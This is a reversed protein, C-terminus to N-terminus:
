RGCHSLNHVIADGLESTSVPSEDPTAIDRTRIGSALARSVAAEIASAAQNYNFSHRLMMALSLIQAIPNAIGKGAIDPASGGSPEYLGLGSPSLSASPTLGLSGPFAAALDSLIDGFLNSTLIVDFQAPAKVLQLACNDVLMDELIVEKYDRHTERVVERWLKSTHLVNAKDVSTVKPARNSVRSLAAEFAVRAVSAIQDETYEAVDRAARKGDISYFSHEGFYIDGQLERIIVLDVGHSIDDRLPCSGPLEQYVKTPRLNASLGCSKRLALISNTECGKWKPLESETIPGGVSGFLIADVATCLEKTELPFHTGHVDFAAGGILGPICETSFGFLDQTTALVKLAEQMVEPGVGDGALVAIRKTVSSERVSTTSM